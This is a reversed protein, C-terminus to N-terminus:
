DLNKYEEILENIDINLRKCLLELIPDVNKSLKALRDRRKIYKKVDKDNFANLQEKTPMAVPVNWKGIYPGNGDTKDFLRFLEVPSDDVNIGNNHLYLCINEVNM